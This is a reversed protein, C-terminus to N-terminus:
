AESVTTKECIFSGGDWAILNAERAKRIVDLLLCYDDHDLSINYKIM